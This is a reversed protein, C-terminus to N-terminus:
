FNMYVYLWTYKLIFKYHTLNIIKETSMNIQKM